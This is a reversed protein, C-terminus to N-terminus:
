KNEEQVIEIKINIKGNLNKEENLNMILKYKKLYKEMHIKIKETKYDNLNIANNNEDLLSIQIKENDFTNEIKIIYFMKVKNIENQDYNKITFCYEIINQEINNIQIKEDSEIEFIPKLIKSKSEISINQFYKAIVCNNILVIILFILIIRIIKKM